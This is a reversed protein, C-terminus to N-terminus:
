HMVPHNQQLIAWGGLLSSINKGLSECLLGEGVQSIKKPHNFPPLKIKNIAPGAGHGNKLSHKTGNPKGEKGSKM